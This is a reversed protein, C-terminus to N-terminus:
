GAPQTEAPQIEVARMRKLPRMGFLVRLVNVPRIVYEYVLVTVGFSTLAIVLYKALDPLPWAVVFFGLWLIVNQHLIYFPLVAETAQALFRSSTHLHHFAFGLVAILGPWVAVVPQFGARLDFLWSLTVLPVTLGLAVWRAQAIRQQLRAQSAILYGALFFWPYQWVRWGGLAFDGGPLIGGMAMSRIILSPGVFLVLAGPVALRDGLWTLVKAGNPGRCSWFLPTLLATLIFLLLLYWLHMGHWAFNGESGPMNLGNFYHPLFDFFTGTFQAHSVREVYIQIISFTFVGVVLPVLLRLVKDKLFGRASGRRSAYWVSSGSIVFMMPMMWIALLDMFWGVWNYTTLNKVSWDGPDFFHVSHYVFVILIFVVRLWDLDYRRLNLENQM